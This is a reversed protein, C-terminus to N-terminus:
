GIVDLTLEARAAAASDATVRFDLHGEDLERPGGPLLAIEVERPQEDLSAAGPREADVREATLVKLVVHGDAPRGGQAAVGDAGV